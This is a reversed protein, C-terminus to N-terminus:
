ISVEGVTNRAGRECKGTEFLFFLSLQFYFHYFLLHFERTPETESTSYNYLFSEIPTPTLRYRHMYWNNRNHKVTPPSVRYLFSSSIAGLTCARTFIYDLLLNTRDLM